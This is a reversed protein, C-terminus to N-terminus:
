EKTVNAQPKSKTSATMAAAGPRAVTHAQLSAAQFAAEMACLSETTARRVLVWETSDIVYRHNLVYLSEGKIGTVIYKGNIKNVVEIDTVRELFYPTPEVEDGLAFTTGTDEMAKFEEFLRVEQYRLKKLARAKEKKSGEKEALYNRAVAKAYKDIRKLLVRANKHAM